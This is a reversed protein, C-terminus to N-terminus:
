APLSLNKYLFVFRWDVLEDLTVESVSQALATLDRSTVRDGLGELQGLIRTLREKLAGSREAVREYEGIHFIAGLAGAFAPLVIVGLTLVFEYPKSWPFMHLACLLATVGFLAQAGNHLLKEKRRSRKETDGHYEIQSEIWSKLIDRLKKCYGADIRASIMGSERVLARLYWNFWKHRPDGPELHSPVRFNSTVRGLPVLFQSQRLSEALVRYDMWREHWRSGRGTLTIFIIIALLSLEIWLPAHDWGHPLSLRNRGEESGLFAFLIASAGMLYTAKFSLRYRAGYSSALRDARAFNTCDRQDRRASEAPEFRSFVGWIDRCKEQTQERSIEKLFKLTTTMEKDSPPLFIRRMRGHLNEIGEKVGLESPKPSPEWLWADHPSAPHIWLVPIESSRAENVIQETGGRKGAEGNWIAILVDCQSLMVRGAAEYAEEDREIVGDLELVATNIPSELLRHFAARSEPKKFDKAAYDERYFPLPSQLNFGLNSSLAEEAVLRDAGEALSSILRLEPEENSYVEMGKALIQRANEKITQLVERVKARLEGQSEPPPLKHPRHGTVGVRVVLRPFPLSPLQEKPAM